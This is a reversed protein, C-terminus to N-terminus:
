RQQGYLRQYKWYSNMVKKVYLNTEDYPIEEIWQEIDSFAGNGLWRSVAEEGANYAAAIAPANGPFLQQLKGLYAMGFGINAVPETLEARSPDGAGGREASVKGATTPMLQMLGVAGAPSIVRPRFNSENLMISWALRPDVGEQAALRTVVPEYAKPYGQEWIFTSFADRGPADDLVPKYRSRAIAYAIDHAYSRAALAMVAESGSAREPCARLERAAEDHLGLRDLLAARRLHASGADSSVPPEAARGVNWPERAQVFAELGRPANALARRSLEAYYGNPHKSLLQQLLARAEGDRSLKFLSRARWYQVRDEIGARQAGSGGGRAARKKRGAPKAAKEAGGAAGLMAGFAEAAAAYDGAMYRCWAVYWRAMVGQEGANPMSAMQQWLPIAEAYKGEDMHLFAIKFAIQAASRSGPPLRDLMRQRIALAKAYDNQKMYTTALTASIEDSFGGAAPDRLLEEMLRIAEDYRHTWRYCRALMWRARTMEANAIRKEGILEELIRAADAWQSGAVYSGALRLRQEPQDVWARLDIRARRKLEDMLGYLESLEREGSCSMALGQLYSSAREADGSAILTLALQQRVRAQDADDAGSLARNLAAQAEAFRGMGTLAIGRELLAENAWVSDPDVRDLMAMAQEHRGLRNAAVARYYAIHDQLLPIRGDAKALPSEAEAFRGHAVAAYGLVFNWEDASYRKAREQFGALGRVVDDLSTSSVAEQPKAAKQSPGGRAHACSANALLMASIVLTHLLLRKM